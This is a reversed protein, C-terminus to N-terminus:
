NLEHHSDDKVQFPVRSSSFIRYMFYALCILSSYFLISTVSEMTIGLRLYKLLGTLLTIM